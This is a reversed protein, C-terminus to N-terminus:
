AAFAFIRARGLADTKLSELSFHAALMAFMDSDKEIHKAYLQVTEIFAADLTREDEETFTENTALQNIVPHGLALFRLVAGRLIM